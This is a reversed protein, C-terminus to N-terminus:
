ADVIIRYEEHLADALAALYEEESAYYENWHDASISAPAIVPLFADELPHKAAQLASVFNQVDRQMAAQGIYRIPAVCVDRRYGRQGPVPNLAYYEAFRVGDQGRPGIAPPEAPRHEYGAVRDMFYTYWGIKGFEGDSIVDVGIAHQQQVADAVTRRLTETLAREDLPQGAQQAETLQVVEAPRILSGVHTTVYRDSSRKMVAGRPHQVLM